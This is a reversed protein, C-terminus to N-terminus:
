ATRAAADDPGRPTSAIRMGVLVAVFIALIGIIWASAEAPHSALRSSQYTVVGTGYALGTTWSLAFLTWKTGTERWIASTAAVCPAYLLIVLLYAMAGATGDFRAAMEGFIGTSVGQEEAVLSQDEVDGINLGLPDALSGAADAINAPVSALAEGIGAMVSFPEDAEGEDAMQGYLANLTGVVAEKAFIGTFLGVTAPWNEERLGMPEVVPTIGKGISSLVSADTDENGFSGDTGLSNLFGLVVVVAVIMKGAKFLFAKLRDWSTRLVSKLTPIHYPPLEMILPSTTGRLLTNKLVLGTLIAALIGIVYLLFVINQGGMPFFAAAFLAYVPLRAGCSMFPSMMVTMIRDRRNDLTRTAMVAPVTCGFGLIMPIFSKGPLGIARMSRDMVFAARAMYGSDELFTLFLFLFGIVPIFTAVTQIGAGVGGPLVAIAWAPAGIDAMVESPWDVLLTGALIDFFDIFASAFNIAFLFMVYMILLFIPIGLVRNLVVTDIRDSLSRSIRGTRRVASRALGNAFGYRSDALLIDIDEDLLDEVKLRAAEAEAALAPPVMAQAAADGDLLKVALWRPDVGKDAAVPATAPALGTLAEEVASPHTVTATPPKPAAAAAVIADKLAEVGKKRSAVLPVVPCGLRKALAAPDIRLGNEEAMDMMNLALITPVRMEVLQATLYLNRELNSADVINIVLDPEGSLIYDRAISEDLGTESISGLSYTGPLDVVAVEAGKHTFVGEKRDVTVGAWNGVRQRSGTLANFLTTKGCNPNGATAITFSSM